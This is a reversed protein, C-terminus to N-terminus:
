QFQVYRQRVPRRLDRVAFLLLAVGAILSLQVALETGQFATSFFSLAHAPDTVHPANAIVNRFSVIQTLYIGVGILAYIKVAVSSTLLNYVWVTYVRRMIQKKIQENQM